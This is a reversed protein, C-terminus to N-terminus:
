NIKEVSHFKDVTLKNENIFWCVMCLPDDDKTESLKFNIGIWGSDSIECEFKHSILFNCEFENITIASGCKNNYLHNTTELFKYLPYIMSKNKMTIPYSNVSNGNLTINIESLNHNRFSTSSKLFDGDLSKQPILGLFLYSPNKGGRINDLRVDTEGKPINKILVDVSDYEYVIPHTDITSFYDRIEPSSIYETVAYCDNIEIYDCDHNISTVALLATEPRSRDFSIKLETNNLLPDPSGLFGTSPTFAFEYRRKDNQVPYLHNRRKIVSTGVDGLLETADAMYHDFYGETIFGTEMMGADYNTVKYIYDTLFFENRLFAKLHTSIHFM